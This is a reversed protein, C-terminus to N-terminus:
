DEGSIGITFYFMSGSYYDTYKRKGIQGNFGSSLRIRHSRYRKESSKILKIDLYGGIKYYPFLPENDINENHVLLRDTIGNVGAGVLPVFKIRRSNKLTYGFTGGVLFHTVASYEQWELNNPFTMTNKVRGFGIYDDIQIVFKGRIFEYNVGVFFPDTFYRSINRNLIGYGIFINYTATKPQYKSGGSLDLTDTYIEQSFVYSSSFLLLTLIVSFLFISKNSRM